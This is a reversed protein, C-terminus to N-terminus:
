EGVIRHAPAAAKTLKQAPASVLWLKRRTAHLPVNREGAPPFPGCAAAVECLLTTPLSRRTTSLWSHLSIPSGFSGPKRPTTAASPTAAPLPSSFLPSPTGAHIAVLTPTSVSCTLLRSISVLRKRQKAFPQRKWRNGLSSSVERCLGVQHPFSASFWFLVVTSKLSRTSPLCRTAVPICAARTDAATLDTLGAKESKRRSEM